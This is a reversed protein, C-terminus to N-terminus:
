KWNSCVKWKPSINVYFLFLLLIKKMHSAYLYRYLVFYLRQLLNTINYWYKNPRNQSQSLQKNTFPWLKLHQNEFCLLTKMQLYVMKKDNKVKLRIFIFINYWYRNERKQEYQLVESGMSSQNSGILLVKMNVVEIFYFGNQLICKLHTFYLCSVYVYIILM